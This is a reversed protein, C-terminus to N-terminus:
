KSSLLALIRFLQLNWVTVSKLPGKNWKLPERYCLYCRAFLNLHPPLSVLMQHSNKRQPQSLEPFGQCYPNNFSNNNKTLKPSVQNNSAERHHGQWSSLNSKLWGQSSSELSRNPSACHNTNNNAHQNDGKLRFSLTSIIKNITKTGKIWTNKSNIPSTKGQNTIKWIQSLLRM